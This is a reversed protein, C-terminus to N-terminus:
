KLKDLYGQLIVMAAVDDDPRRKAIGKTLEKAASTSLVENEIVVPITVAAALRDSFAKAAAYQASQAGGLSLPVGVVIQAIGEKLLIDNIDHFITPSNEIICFPSAVKSDTDGIAMGIKKDGYDIGLLRM